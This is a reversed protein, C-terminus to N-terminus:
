QPLDRTEKTDRHRLVEETPCGRYDLKKWTEVDGLKQWPTDTRTELMKQTEMDVSQETSCRLHNWFRKQTDRDGAEEHHVAPPIKPLLDPQPLAHPRPLAYHPWTQESNVEKQKLKNSKIWTQRWPQWTNVTFSIFLPRQSLREPSQFPISVNADLTQADRKSKIKNM